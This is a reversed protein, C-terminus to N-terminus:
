TGGKQIDMFTLTCCLLVAPLLMLSFANTCSKFETVFQLQTQHCVPRLYSPEQSSSNGAQILQSYVDNTSQLLSQINLLNQKGVKKVCLKEDEVEAAEVLSPAWM